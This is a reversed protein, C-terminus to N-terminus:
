KKIQETWWKFAAPNQKWITCLGTATRSVIQEHDIEAADTLDLAFLLAHLVEHLWTEAIIQASNDGNIVILQNEFDCWGQAESGIQIANDVWRIKYVLNLIQIKKPKNMM